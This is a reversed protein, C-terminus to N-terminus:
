GKPAVYSYLTTFFQEPNDKVYKYRKYVEKITCRKNNILGNKIAELIQKGMEKMLKKNSTKIKAKLSPIHARTIAVQVFM